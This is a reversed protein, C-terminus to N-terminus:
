KEYPIIEMIGTLFAHLANKIEKPYSNFYITQGSKVFSELQPISKVYPNELLERSAAYGKSQVKSSYIIPSVLEDITAEKILPPMKKCIADSRRRYIYRTIYLDADKNCTQGMLYGPTTEYLAALYYCLVKDIQPIQGNELKSLWTKSVWSFEEVEDLSFGAKKRQEKLREGSFYVSDTWSIFNRYTLQYSKIELEYGNETLSQYQRPLCRKDPYECSHYKSCFLKAKGKSSDQKTPNEESIAACDLHAANIHKCQSLYQEILKMDEPKRRPFKEIKWWLNLLCSKEKSDKETITKKNAEADEAGIAIRKKASM